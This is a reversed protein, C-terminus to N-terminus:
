FCFRLLEYNLHNRRFVLLAPQQYNFIARIAAIYYRKWEDEKIDILDEFNLSVTLLPHDLQYQSIFAQIDILNRWTQYRLDDLFPNQYNWESSLIKWRSRRAPFKRNTQHQESYLTWLKAFLRSIILSSLILQPSPNIKRATKEVEACSTKTVIKLTVVTVPGEM